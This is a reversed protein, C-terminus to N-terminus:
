QKSPSISTLTPSFSNASLFFALVYKSAERGWERLFVPLLPALTITTTLGTASYVRLVHHTGFFLNQDAIILFAYPFREVEDELVVMVHTKDLVAGLAELRELFVWAKVDNEHVDLHGLAVADIDGAVDFGAVGINLYDDDGAVGAGFDGLLGEGGAGVVVDGLRKIGLFDKFLDAVVRLCERHEEFVESFYVPKEYRTEGKNNSGKEYNNDQSLKFCIFKM